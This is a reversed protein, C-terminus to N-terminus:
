NLGLRQILQEYMHGTLYCIWITVVIVVITIIAKTTVKYEPNKWVLPLAFPGIFVLVVAFVTLAAPVFVLLGKLFYNMLRKM